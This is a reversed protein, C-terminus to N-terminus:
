STHAVPLPRAKQQITEEELRPVYRWYAWEIVEKLGLGKLDTDVVDFRCSVDPVVGSEHLHPIFLSFQLIQFGVIGDPCEADHRVYFDYETMSTRAPRSPLIELWLADGEPHYVVKMPKITEV